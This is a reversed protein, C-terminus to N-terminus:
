IIKPLYHNLFFEKLALEHVWFKGPEFHYSDNNDFVYAGPVGDVYLESITTIECYPSFENIYLNGDLGQIMDVALLPCKMIENVSRAIRLAKEPLARLEEQHMGSARFDGELVKRYFGFAKNGVVIVRIDYGDNPIFQQFYVYNKQRTHVVHIKRGNQSFAQQVIKEAHSQSRILEVGLSGSSPIVKSVIPYEIKNILSLADKKDHSVYTRIFPFNHIKSLAAELAKNEYLFIQHRSPFCFKGLVTELVNIKYRLEELNYTSCSTIGVIVDFEKGKEMWDHNHIDYVHHPFSNNKCFRSYRTWSPYQGYDQIIGINPKKINIPWNIHIEEAINLKSRDDIFFEKRMPFYQRIRSYIISKQIKKIM